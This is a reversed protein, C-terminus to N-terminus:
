ADPDIGKFVSAFETIRERSAKSTSLMMGSMFATGVFGYPDEKASESLIAKLAELRRQKRRRRYRASLVLWSAIALLPLLLLGGTALAAAWPSMHAALALYAADALFWVGAITVILTMLVALLVLAISVRNM